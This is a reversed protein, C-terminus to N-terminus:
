KGKRMRPVRANRTASELCKMSPQQPLDNWSTNQVFVFVSCLINIFNGLLHHTSSWQFPRINNKAPQSAAKARSSSENICRSTYNACYFSWRMFVWSHCNRAKLKHQRNISTKVNFKLGTPTARENLLWKIWRCGFLFMQMFRKRRLQKFSSLFSAFIKEINRDSTSRPRGRLRGDYM